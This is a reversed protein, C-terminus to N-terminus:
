FLRAGPRPCACKRQRASLTTARHRSVHQRKPAPHARETAVELGLAERHEEALRPLAGDVEAPPQRPLEAVTRDAADGGDSVVRAERTRAALRTLGGSLSPLREPHTVIPRERETTRAGGNTVSSTSRCPAPIGVLRYAAPDRAARHGSWSARRPRRRRRSPTEARRSDDRTTPRDYDLLLLPRAPLLM